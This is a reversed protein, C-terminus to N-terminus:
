LEKMQKENEFLERIMIPMMLEEFEHFDIVGNRDKDVQAVMERAKEMTIHHHMSKMANFIEIDSM